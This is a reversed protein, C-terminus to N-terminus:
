GGNQLLWSECGPTKKIFSLADPNTVNEKSKIQQEVKSLIDEPLFEYYDDVLKIIADNWILLSKLKEPSPNTELYYKLFDSSRSILESHSKENYIAGM